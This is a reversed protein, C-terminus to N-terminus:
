RKFMNKLDKAMENMEEKFDDMDNGFEKMSKNFDDLNLPLLQEYTSKAKDADEGNLVKGNIIITEIGDKVVRKYTIGDKQVVSTSNNITFSEKKSIYDKWESKIKNYLEDSLPKKDQTKFDKKPKEKFM